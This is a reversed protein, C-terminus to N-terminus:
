EYPCRSSGVAVEVARLPQAADLGNLELSQAGAHKGRLQPYSVKAGLRGLQHMIGLAGFRSVMRGYKRYLVNFLLYPVLTSGVAPLRKVISPWSYFRRYARFYGSELEKVTMGTPRFVVKSTNYHTLDHDFIRGQSMLRSHLVTGPYPTLIHATMTEIKHEILWRTTEDFVSPGDHDFGFAVSANVMMGRDHIKSVTRGYADVRNQRKNSLKLNEAILTEFGIFLSRCGSEAMLDLIDDYVGINASVATHWTLRLPLFAKLLERAFSPNAIFNDDIFMVHPSDLSDIERLIHDIPKARYDAPLNPSSNYCFSCRWPCGRGITLTNTYLYPKKSILNWQPIPTLSLDPPTDCQYVKKLCGAEADHLVDSWLTEAEGIVISDAHPASERPCTTPYIGGLVVPIGRRRYSRAIDWARATTDAKVTIGVLDPEDTGRHREINEDIITVRHRKPTLAALVLLSLPPAMQRKFASDMPRMTVRPSILEIWM